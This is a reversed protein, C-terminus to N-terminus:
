NRNKDYILFDVFKEYTDLEYKRKNITVSNAIELKEGFNSEWVWWELWDFQEKDFISNFLLNFLQNHDSFIEINIIGSLKMEINIVEKYKKLINIIEKKNIEKKM